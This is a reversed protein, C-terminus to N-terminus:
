GLGMYWNKDWDLIGTKIGTGYVLEYGLGMVRDWIGTGIGASFVSTRRIQRYNPLFGSPMRRVDLPYGNTRGPNPVPFKSKSSPYPVPFARIELEPDQHRSM